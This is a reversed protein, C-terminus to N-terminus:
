INLSIYGTKKLLTNFVAGSKDQGAWIVRFFTSGKSSLSVMLITVIFGQIM